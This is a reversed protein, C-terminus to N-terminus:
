VYENLSNVFGLIELGILNVTSIADNTYSHIKITYRKFKHCQLITWKRLEARVEGQVNEMFGMILMDVSLDCALKSCNDRMKSVCDELHTTDTPEKSTGTESDKVITEQTEGRTKGEIKPSSARLSPDDDPNVLILKGHSTLRTGTPHCTVDRDDCDIENWDEPVPSANKTSDTSQKPLVRKESETTGVRSDMHKLSSADETQGRSSINDDDSTSKRCKTEERQQRPVYRQQDVRRNHKGKNQVRRDKLDKGASEVGDDSSRRQQKGKIGDRGKKKENKKPQQKM